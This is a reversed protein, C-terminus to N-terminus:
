TRILQFSSVSHTLFVVSVQLRLKSAILGDREMKVHRWHMTYSCWLRCSEHRVLKGLLKRESNNQISTLIEFTMYYHMEISKGLSRESRTVM